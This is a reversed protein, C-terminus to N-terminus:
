VGGNLICRANRVLPRVYVAKAPVAHKHYRDLVAQLNKLTFEHGYLQTPIAKSM